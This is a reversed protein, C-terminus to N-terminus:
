RLHVVSDMAPNVVSNAAPNVASNATCERANKCEPYRRAQM